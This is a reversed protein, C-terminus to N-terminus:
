KKRSRAKVETARVKKAVGDLISNVYKFGDEAGFTKAIEVSENIVVRYPIDPRFSLEYVGLRMVSREVPDVEKMPRDLFSEIHEDIVDIKAPVKHLLEKFYKLDVKSMDHELVFQQDIDSLDTKTIEWMYLAQVARRRAMSRAKSM